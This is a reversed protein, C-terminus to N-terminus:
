ELIHAKGATAHVSRQAPLVECEVGQERYIFRALFCFSRSLGALHGAARTCVLRWRLRRRSLDLLGDLFFIFFLLMVFIFFVFVPVCRRASFIIVVLLTDLDAKEPIYHYLEQQILLSHTHSTLGACRYYSDHCRGYRGTALGQCRRGARGGM